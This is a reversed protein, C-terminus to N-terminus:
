LHSKKSRVLGGQILCIKFFQQFCHIKVRQVFSFYWYRLIHMVYNTNGLKLQNNRNLNTLGSLMAYMSM